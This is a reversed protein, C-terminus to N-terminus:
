ITGLCVYFVFAPEMIDRLVVPSNAIFSMM